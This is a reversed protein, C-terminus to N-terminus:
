PHVSVRAVSMAGGAVANEPSQDRSYEVSLLKELAFISVIRGLSAVSIM